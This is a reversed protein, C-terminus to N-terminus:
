HLRSNAVGLGSLMIKARQLQHILEARGWAFARAGWGKELTSVDPLSNVPTKEESLVVSGPERHRHPKVFDRLYAEVVCRKTQPMTHLKAETLDIQEDAGEHGPELSLVVLSEKLAQINEREVVFALAKHYHVKVVQQKTPRPRKGNNAIISNLLARSRKPLGAKTLCRASAILFEVQIEAFNVNGHSDSGQSSRLRRMEAFKMYIAGATNTSDAELFLGRDVQNAARQQYANARELYEENRRIPTTMINILNACETPSNLGEITVSHSGRFDRCCHLLSERIAPIQMADEDFRLAISTYHFTLLLKGIVQFDQQPVLMFAQYKDNENPSTMDMRLVPTRPFCLPNQVDVFPYGTNRKMNPIMGNEDESTAVLVWKTEEYLVRSSEKYTQKSVRLIAPNIAYFRKRGALRSEGRVKKPLLLERYVGDRLERPLHM